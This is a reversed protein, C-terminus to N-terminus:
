IEMGKFLCVFAGPETNAKDPSFSFRKPGPHSDKALSTTCPTVAAPRLNSLRERASRREKWVLASVDLLVTGQHADLLLERGFKM